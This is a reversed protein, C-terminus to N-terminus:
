RRQISISGVGGRVTLAIHDAGPTYNTSTYVNGERRLDNPVSVRGLGADAVIRVPAGSPIRVTSSGVGLDLTAVYGGSPLTIISEGVGGAYTLGVLRVQSLDLTTQGVGASVDLTLPVERTLALSWSRDEAGFQVTGRQTRSRLELVMTDVDLHARQEITEGRGSVITGSAFRGAPADGTVRVRGVGLDLIVRGRTAGELPTAITLTDGRATGGGFLTGGARGIDSAWLVLAVAVAVAIVATRYRGTTLMDVGVAVLAVPWYALIRFLDGFAFWGFNSALLLVGLGILVLPGFGVGTTRREPPPPAAGSPPPTAGSPGTRDHSDTM